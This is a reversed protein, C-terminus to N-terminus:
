YLQRAVDRHDWLRVSKAKLVRTLKSELASICPTTLFLGSEVIGQVNYLIDKSLKSKGDKITVTVSDWAFSNVTANLLHKEDVSNHEPDM